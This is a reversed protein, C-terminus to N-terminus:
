TENNDVSHISFIQSERPKLYELNAIRMLEPIEENEFAMQILHMYILNM